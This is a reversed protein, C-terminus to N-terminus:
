DKSAIARLIYWFLLSSIAVWRWDLFFPLGTIASVDTIGWLIRVSIVVMFVVLNINRFAHYLSDLKNGSEEIFANQKDLTQEIKNLFAPGKSWFKYYAFSVCAMEVPDFVERFTHLERRRFYRKLYAIFDFSNDLQLIIIDSIILARYYRMAGHILSMNFKRILGMNDVLLRATSKKGIPQQEDHCTAIWGRIQGALEYRFKKVTDNKRSQCEILDLMAEVSEDIDEEKLARFYREQKNALERDMGGVIGFDVYGVINNPLIVINAAHPDGHFSRVEFIQRMGIYFLRKAILPLDLGKDRFTQLSDNDGHQIASLIETMWIGDLYEMTLARGSTYEEILRPVKMIPMKRSMLWAQHINKAECRYDLEDELISGLENVLPSLRISGFLRFFDIFFVMARLSTLDAIVMNKINPRQVKIAAIEGSRLTVKYVQGFSASAVVEKPFELFLESIKAKLDKEVFKKAIAYPFPPVDDLLKTLESVYRQPVFDIRMALIQGLKIWSGGMRELYERILRPGFDERNPSLRLFLTNIFLRFIYINFFFQVKLARFIVFPINWFRLQLKSGGGGM